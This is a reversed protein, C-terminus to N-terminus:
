WDATRFGEATQWPNCRGWGHSVTAAGYTWGAATLGVREADNANLSAARCQLRIFQPREPEGHDDLWDAFVLRSTDNEPDDKIAALFAHRQSLATHDPM